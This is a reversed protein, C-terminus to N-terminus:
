CGGGGEEGEGGGGGGGGVLLLGGCCDVDHSQVGAVELQCHLSVRGQGDQKVVVARAGRVGPGDGRPLLYTPLHNIYTRIYIKYIHFSTPYIYHTHHRHLIYTHTPPLPHSV